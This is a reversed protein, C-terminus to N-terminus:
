AEGRATHPLCVLRAAAAARLFIESAMSIVVECECTVLKPLAIAAEPRLGPQKRLRLDM